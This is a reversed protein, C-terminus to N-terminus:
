YEVTSIFWLKNLQYRTHASWTNKSIFWLKNLWYRTHASWTNETNQKNKQSSYSCLHKLEKRHQKIYKSIYRWLVDGSTTNNPWVFLSRPAMHKMTKINSSCFSFAYADKSPNFFDQRYLNYQKADGTVINSLALKRM